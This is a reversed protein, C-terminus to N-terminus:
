GWLEIYKRNLDDIGQITFVDKVGDESTVEISMGLALEISPYKPIFVDYTYTHMQGDSGLMQRAPISKEIQCEFGDHWSNPPGTPTYLGTVPDRQVDQFVQYRFTGNFRGM